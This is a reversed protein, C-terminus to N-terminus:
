RNGRKEAGSRLKGALPQRPAEASREPGPPPEQDREHLEPVREEPLAAGRASAAHAALRELRKRYERAAHALDGPPLRHAGYVVLPEEWTMGCFLATQEVV